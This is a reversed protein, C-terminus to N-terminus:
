SATKAIILMRYECQNGQARRKQIKYGHKRIAIHITASFRHGVERVLKETSHWQGDSLVFTLKELMTMLNVELYVECLPCGYTLRSTALSLPL